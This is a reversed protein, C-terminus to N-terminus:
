KHLVSNCINDLRCTLMTDDSHFAAFSFNDKSCLVPDQAHSLVQSPADLAFDTQHKTFTTDEWPRMSRKHTHTKSFSSATDPPSSPTSCAAMHQNKNTPTTDFPSGSRASADALAPVLKGQLIFSGACNRHTALPQAPAQM